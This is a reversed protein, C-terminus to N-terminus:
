ALQFWAEFTHNATVATFTYAGGTFYDQPSRNVWAGGDIRWAIWWTFQGPTVTVTASGGNVVTQSTPLVSGSGTSQSYKSATITWTPVTSALASKVLIDSTTLSEIAPAVFAAGVVAKKIFARRAVREAHSAPQKGKKKM